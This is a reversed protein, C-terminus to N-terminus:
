SQINAQKSFMGEKETKNFYNTLERLWPIKTLNLTNILHSSPELCQELCKVFMLNSLEGLLGMLHPM